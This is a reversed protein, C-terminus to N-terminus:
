GNDGHEGPTIARGNDMDAGRADQAIGEILERAEGAQADPVLVHYLSCPTPQYMALHPGSAFAGFPDRARVIATLGEASLINRVMEAMSLYKHTYVVVPEM